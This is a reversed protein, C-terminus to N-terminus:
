AVLDVLVNSKKITAKFNTMTTGTTGLDTVKFLFGAPFTQTGLIDSCGTTVYLDQLKTGGFEVSTVLLADIKIQLDVKKTRFPLYFYTKQCM